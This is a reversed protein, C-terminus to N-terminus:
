VEFYPLTNPSIPSYSIYIEKGLQVEGQKVSVAWANGATGNGGAELYNTGYFNPDPNIYIDHGMINVVFIGMDPIQLVLPMTYDICEGEPLILPILSESDMAQDFNLKVTKRNGGIKNGDSDYTAYKARINMEALKSM